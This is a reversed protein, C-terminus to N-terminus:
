NKNEKELKYFWYCIRLQMALTLMAFMIALSLDSDIFRGFSFMLGLSLINYFAFIVYKHKAIYTRKM